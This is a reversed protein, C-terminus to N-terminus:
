SGTESSKKESHKEAQEKTRINRWAVFTVVAMIFHTVFWAPSESFVKGVIVALLAPVVLLFLFVAQLASHLGLQWQELRYWFMVWPSFGTLKDYIEGQCGGIGACYVSYPVAAGHQLWHLTQGTVKDNLWPRNVYVSAIVDNVVINGATTLPSYAGRHHVKRISLVKAANNQNTVLSDGVKIDGAPVLSKENKSYFYILHEASIELPAGNGTVKIQIYETEEEPSFHGFSYVKSYTGQASLVFDGVRLKDM